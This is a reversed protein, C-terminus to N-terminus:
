QKAETYIDSLKIKKYEMLLGELALRIVNRAEDRLPAVIVWNDVFSFTTLDVLNEVTFVVSGVKVKTEADAFFFPKLTEFDGKTIKKGRVRLGCLEGGFDEEKTLCFRNWADIIKNKEKINM